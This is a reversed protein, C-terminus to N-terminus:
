ILSYESNILPCKEYCKKNGIYPFSWISPSSVIILALIQFFIAQSSTCVKATYKTLTIDPGESFQHQGEPNEQAFECSVTEM